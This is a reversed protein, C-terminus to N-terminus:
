KEFIKPYEEPAIKTEGLFLEDGKAIKIKKFNKLLDDLSQICEEKGDKFFQTFITYTDNKLNYHLSSQAFADTHQEFYSINKVKEKISKLILKFNKLSYPRTSHRKGGILLAREPPNDFLELDRSFRSCISEHTLKGDFIHFAYAEQNPSIIGGATCSRVCNTYFEDAFAIPRMIHNIRKGSVTNIFADKNVFKIRSQFSVNNNM